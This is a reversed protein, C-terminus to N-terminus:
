RVILELESTFKLITYYYEETLQIVVRSDETFSSLYKVLNTTQIM